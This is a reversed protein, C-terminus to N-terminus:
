DGLVSCDSTALGLDADVPYGRWKQKNEQVTGGDIKFGETSGSESYLKVSEDYTLILRQVPEQIM